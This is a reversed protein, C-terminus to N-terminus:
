LQHYITIIGILFVYIEVLFYNSSLMKLWLYSEHLAKLLNIQRHEHSDYQYHFARYLCSLYEGMGSASDGDEEEFEFLLDFPWYVGIQSDEEKLAKVASGRSITIYM